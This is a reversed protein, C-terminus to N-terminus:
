NTETRPWTPLLAELGLRRADAELGARKLARISDGLAILNADAAGNPGLAKMVLLVTHGFEQKKSAGQLETLVGTEPLYGSTPQAIRNAADWLPIPVLYDLAEMVTTLRYLAAPPFRGSSAYAELSSFTRGRGPENPDAIDILARWHDLGPGGGGQDAIDIWRRAMDFRGSALGIEVGTEAFWSIEPAPQVDYAAQSIMKAGIMGLGEHRVDDLFARILRTKRMPSREDEAAKFLAARRGVGKPGRDALLDDPPVKEANVRYIGALMQPTLANLRAAAETAPFGLDVPTSHDTALAVLLAPEGKELVLKHSLGGVREAIRYDLLSIQKVASYRPKSGISFADLAELGPSTEVGEERALDAALGAAAKDDKSASCYGAMLIVQGKLRAPIAGKLGASRSVLECAKDSHGAALENRAELSVLLPNDGAPQKAIEAAAERALGSRYLAELRLATFSANSGDGSPTTILKKWLDHLVPSRPPIEITAILKELAAVDMGGWLEFPLGSGDSSMVPALEGKDVTPPIADRMVSNGSGPPAARKSGTNGAGGSPRSWLDDGGQSPSGLPELYSRKNPPPSYADDRAPRKKSSAPPPAAGPDEQGGAPVTTAIVSLPLLAAMWFQRVGSTTKRHTHVM